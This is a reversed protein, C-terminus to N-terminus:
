IRVHDRSDHCHPHCEVVKRRRGDQCGKPSVCRQTGPLYLIEAQINAWWRLSLRSLVSSSKRGPFAQGSWYREM